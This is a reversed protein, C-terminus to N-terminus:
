PPALHKRLEDADAGSLSKLVVRLTYNGVIKKNRVYCWDAIDGDKIAIRQGMHVRHVFEPDNNITGYLQGKRKALDVVWFFETQSGEKVGIKLSFDSEGKGPHKWQRWFTPLTKVAHAIAGNMAKDNATTTYM